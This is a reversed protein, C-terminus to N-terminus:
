RLYEYTDGLDKFAFGYLGFTAACFFYVQKKGNEDTVQRERCLKNLRAITAFDYHNFLCVYDFQEIYNEDIQDIKLTSEATLQVRPNLHQLVRCTCVSKWEGVDTAGTMTLTPTQEIDELTVQTNDLVTISAVGALCLNKCVEISLSNVNIM